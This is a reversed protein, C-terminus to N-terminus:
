CAYINDAAAHQVLGQTALNFAQWHQNAIVPREGGTEGVIGSKHNHLAAAASSALCSRAAPRRSTAEGTEQALQEEVQHALEREDLRAKEEEVIQRLLRRRGSQTLKGVRVGWRRQMKDRYHPRNGPPMSRPLARRLHQRVSVKRWDRRRNQPPTPHSTAPSNRTPVLLARVEDLLGTSANLGHIDRGKTIVESTERAKNALEDADDNLGVGCHGPVWAYEVSVFIGATERVGLLDGEASHLAGLLRRRPASLERNRGRIDDWCLRSDTFVTVVASAPGPRAQPLTALAELEAKAVALSEIIAVMECLNINMNSAPIIPRGLGVQEGDDPAGPRYRNFAVAYAATQEDAKFSADCFMALRTDRATSRHAAAELARRVHARYKSASSPHGPRPTENSFSNM